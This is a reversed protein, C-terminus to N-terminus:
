NIDFDATRVVPEGTQRMVSVELKYAGPPLNAIPLASVIPVVPSGARMFSVAMKVGTDEKQQGSARDLVRFRFGVLPLAAPNAATLLPEYLEVYFFARDAAHFQSTGTPVLEAGKAVLPRLGELLSGDLGAAPDAAPQADHSLAVGSESLTQGNWPDIKLPMEVKGFGQAGSSFAM